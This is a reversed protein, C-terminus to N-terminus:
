HEYPSAKPRPWSYGRPGNQRPYVLYLNAYKGRGSERVELFGKYDLRDIAFSPMRCSTREMIQKFSLAVFGEEDAESCLLDFVERQKDTIESRWPPDQDPLFIRNENGKRGREIKVRGLAVLQHVLLYFRDYDLEVLECGAKFSLGDPGAERVADVVEPEIELADMKSESNIQNGPM